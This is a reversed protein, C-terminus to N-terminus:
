YGFFSFHMYDKSHTWNGGWGWGNSIFSKYLAGDTTISYPNSGPAYLDGTTCGGNSPKHCNEVVNIDVALGYCHQSYYFGIDKMAGASDSGFQRYGGIEYVVFGENQAATLAAIVDGAIYKNVQVTTTTKTGSKTTIPVTVNALNQEVGAATTPVGEPFVKKLKEAYSANAMGSQEGTYTSSSKNKNANKQAQQISKEAEEERQKRKKEAQANLENRIRETRAKLAAKESSDSMFSIKREAVGLSSVSPNEEAYEVAETASFTKANVIMEDTVNFMCDINNYDLDTFAVTCFAQVITPLFLILAAAVFKYPIKGVQKMLEDSNGSISAKGIDFSTTIIIILPLAIKLIAVLINIVQFITLLLPSSCM